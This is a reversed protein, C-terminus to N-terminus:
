LDSPLTSAPNKFVDTTEPVAGGPVLQPDRVGRVFDQQNRPEWCTDACVRTGRWTKRLQSVRRKAGCMMCIGPPDGAKFVYTM